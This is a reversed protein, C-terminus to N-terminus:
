GFFSRYTREDLERVDLLVLFDTTGFERDFAPAGCVRAGLALYGDFLPTLPSTLAENTTLPRTRGDDALASVAPRPKVWVRDHLAERAHIVRWAERAAEADVGALSCCGFLFRKDNWQLYRALGRWLLKLVRGSRHAPAVCARGVEVAQDLIAGPIAGLEFLTASYFGFRTAAMVATQLRYTGVVDGTARHEIMLHHFWPDRADGERGADLAEGEGLEECFVRHRLAQVAHLDARTWAFRLTYAGAEVTGPPIADVHHPFVEHDTPAVLASEPTAAAAATHPASETFLDAVYARALM